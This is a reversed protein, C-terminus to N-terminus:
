WCFSAFFVPPPRLLLLDRFLLLRLLLLLLTLLLYLRQKGLAPPKRVMERIQVIEERARERLWQDDFAKPIAWLRLDKLGGSLDLEGGFTCCDGVETFAGFMKDIIKLFNLNFRRISLFTVFKDSFTEARLEALRRCVVAIIRLILTMVVRRRNIRKSGNLGNDAGFSQFDNVIQRSLQIMPLLFELLILKEKDM